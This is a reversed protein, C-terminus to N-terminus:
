ELCSTISGDIGAVMLLLILLGQPFLYANKEPFFEQLTHGKRNGRGAGATVAPIGRSIAINANSSGGSRFFPQAGLFKGALYYAEVLPSHLDQKGGPMYTLLEKEYTVPDGNQNKTEKACAEKICTEIKEDLAHFMGEDESRYNVFLTCDWPIANIASKESSCLRTSAYTTRPTDPVSIEEIMSVAYCAAALPNTCLKFSNGAHGGSGYFTYKVNAGYTANYTIGEVFGGDVSVSAELSPYADLLSKMGASGGPSEEQVTGAILISKRTQLGSFKLARLTALLSALGRANDYIGPGYLVGEERRIRGVTHFPFVTDMHAEFLICGKETGELIGVVNGDARITVQRVALSRLKKAFFRARTHEFYTPSEVEAISIQELISNEQDKELFDLAIRVPHMASVTDM